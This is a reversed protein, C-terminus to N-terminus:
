GVIKSFLEDLSPEEPYFAKMEIGLSMFYKIIDSTNAKDRDFEIRVLTECESPQISLLTISENKLSQSSLHQQVQEYAMNLILAYKTSGNMKAKIKPITDCIEVHGKDIITVRDCLEEAEHMNNTALVVTKKAEGVITNKIFSRINRTAIREYIYGDDLQIGSLPKTEGDLIMKPTINRNNLGTQVQLRLLSHDSSIDNETEFRSYMQKFLQIYKMSDSSLVAKQDYFQLNLEYGCTKNPILSM